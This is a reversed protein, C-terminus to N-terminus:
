QAGGSAALVAEADVVRLTRPRGPERELRGELILRQVYIQVTSTSSLGVARGIERTAPPFGAQEIYSAVFAVIRDAVDARHAEREGMPIVPQPRKRRGPAPVPKAPVEADEALPTGTRAAYTCRECRCGWNGYTTPLGHPVVGPDNKARDVREAKREACRQRWAARCKRCRCKWNSYGDVTGHPAGPEEVEPGPRPSRGKERMDASNDAASGLFLHSPNCCPPNDCRHCVLIFSDEIPGNTLIWALRHATINKRNYTTQGYGNRRRAGLWPWCSEPDAREVRPWFQLAVEADSRQNM